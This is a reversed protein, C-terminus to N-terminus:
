GHREVFDAFKGVWGQLFARTEDSTVNFEADFLGPRAQLYLEPRGMLLIGQPPLVMRMVAQAVATGIVGPTAGVVAAPKDPWVGKGHPRSGWSIANLLLPSPARNFEPTVFLLADAVRVQQKFAEVEAPPNPWLDDDYMPLAALDAYDFALRDQALRALAKTFALNISAPRQSGVLALVTKM